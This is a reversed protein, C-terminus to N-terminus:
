SVKQPEAPSRISGDYVQLAAVFFGTYSIVELVPNSFKGERIVVRPLRCNRDDISEIALPSKGQRRQLTVRWLMTTGFSETGFRVRPVRHWFSFGPPEVHL